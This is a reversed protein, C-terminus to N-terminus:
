EETETELWAWLKEGLQPDQTEPRAEGERAWPILYKGNFDVTQQSVGAWLPTLAGYPPTAFCWGFILMFASTTHRMLGTKISGPNVSISVIGQDGYRRAFENSLVVNAFKSQTYLKSTGLKKRKPVDKLADLHITDAFIHAISSINVIRAKKDPSSKAGALLLPLLRKTFVYHGIVNTGFQLDYGDATLQEIPPAMVGANNFLVHLESEKSNFEDTAKRVSALSSLDLELFIAEKGTESKLKAIAVEALQQSRSAMYVKANRLLLAKITECGIGGNGGTVVIIKGTLDPIDTVAFESKPPFTQSVINGM